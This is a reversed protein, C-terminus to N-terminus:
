VGVLDADVELVASAAVQGGAFGAVEALGLHDLLHTGYTTRFILPLAPSRHAM